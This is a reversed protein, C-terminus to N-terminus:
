YSLLGPPGRPPPRLAVYTSFFVAQWAAPVAPDERDIFLHPGAQLTPLVRDMALLCFPCHVLSPAAEQGDPAETQIQGTTVDVWRMGADTCVGVWPTADAQSWAVAHSVTPALAGFVAIWVALWVVLTRRLSDFRPTHTM